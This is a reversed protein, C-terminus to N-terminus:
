RTARVLLKLNAFSEVVGDARRVGFLEDAGPPPDAFLADLRYQTEGGVLHESRQDGDAGTADRDLGQAPGLREDRRERMRVRAPGDLPRREDGM